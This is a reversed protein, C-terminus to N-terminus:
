NVILSCNGQLAQSVRKMSTISGCCAEAIIFGGQEVYRKLLTKEGDSFKPADTGNIFCFPHKCTLSSM